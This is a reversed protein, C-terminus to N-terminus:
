CKTSGPVTVYQGSVKWHEERDYMQVSPKLFCSTLTMYIYTYAHTYMYICTNGNLLYVHPLIINHVSFSSLKHVYTCTHICLNIQFEYIIDQHLQIHINYM